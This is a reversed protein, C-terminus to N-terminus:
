QGIICSIPKHDSYDVNHTTFEASKFKESYFIYDIRNSPVEGIYTTGIGNGSKVFADDLLHNFQRYCYSVPTDNLDGCLIVPYPSKQVESAIKEAQLARKEFGVKLRKLIRQGVANSYYLDESADENFFRYDDDQFRISGIHANFVRITDFATVIDSYICFNNPDNEFPIEGENIIPYKSFTAVGFYRKNTLEHTYREHYYPTNLLEVMSDKTVFNTSGEQHYFEQFCYIGADEAKLFSFIANRNAVRGELDYLNFIHLNYSLVEVKQKISGDSINIAFFHRLHNFGVLITLISIWILKRRFIFWFVIFFLGISLWIPYALGFYSFYLFSNPSIHTALYAALLALSNLINAWLFLRLAIGLKPKEEANVKM